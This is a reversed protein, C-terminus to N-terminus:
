VSGCLCRGALSVRQHYKLKHLVCCFCMWVAESVAHMAVAHDLQFCCESLVIATSLNGVESVDPGETTVGVM